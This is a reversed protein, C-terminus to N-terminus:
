TFKKGDFIKGFESHAWRMNETQAGREELNISTQTWFERVRKFRKAVVPLVATEGVFSQGACQKNCLKDPNDMSFETSTTYM